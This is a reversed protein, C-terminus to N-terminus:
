TGGRGTSFPPSSPRKSIPEVTMRSKSGPRTTQSSRRTGSATTRMPWRMPPAGHALPDGAHLPHVIEQRGVDRHPVRELRRDALREAAEAVLLGPGGHRLVGREEDPADALGGVDDALLHVGEVVLRAAAEGETRLPSRRADPCVDLVGDRLALRHGAPPVEARHEPVLPHLGAAVALEPLHAGFGVPDGRRRLLGLEDIERHLEETRHAQLPDPHLQVGEAVRLRAARVELREPGEEPRVLALQAGLALLPRLLVREADEVALVRPTLRDKRARWGDGVRERVLR